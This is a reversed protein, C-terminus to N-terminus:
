VGIIKNVIKQVEEYDSGLIQKREEGEGLEGMIVAEALGQLRGNENESFVSGLRIYGKICNSTPKLHRMKVTNSYNGEITILMEDSVKNVIGIHNPTLDGSWDFVILDNEAIGESGHNFCGWKKAQKVMELVSVGYPFENKSYGSIRAVCSVFMGCWNEGLSMYHRLNHPVLNIVDENYFRVMDKRKAVNMNLYGLAIESLDLKNM